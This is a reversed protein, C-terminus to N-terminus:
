LFQVFAMTAPATPLNPPPSLPITLVLWIVIEQAMSLLKPNIENPGTFGGLTKLPLGESRM